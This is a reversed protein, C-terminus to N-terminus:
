KVEDVMSSFCRKLTSSWVRRVEKDRFRMELMDKVMEERPSIITRAIITPMRLPTLDSSLV